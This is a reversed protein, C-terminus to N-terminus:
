YGLPAATLSMSALSSSIVPTILSEVSVSDAVPGVVTIVPGALPQVLTMLSEILDVVDQLDSTLTPLLNEIIGGFQGAADVLAQVVSSLLDVVMQLNAPNALLADFLEPTLLQTLLGPVLVLAGSDALATILAVVQELEGAALLQNVLGPVMNALVGVQGADVLAEFLATLLPANAPDALLALVLEPTVIQTVLGPLEALAGSDALATILTVVQQLQGAALLDNVLGPVLNALVGVQGADVLTEFLSTLLPANAPDALLALVLEPTVIQTLLGPLEALAGSDALATILAVAQQLQGAALLDDVLGPVLGALLDAQGAEVVAQLVATLLATNAPDALLTQLTEPTLLQTVIAAIQETEGAAALADVVAPLLPLLSAVEGEAIVAQVVSVASDTLGADLLQPIIAQAATTDGSDLLTDSVLSLLALSDNEVLYDALATISEIEGATLLAALEREAPTAQDGLAAIQALIANVVSPPVPIPVALEEALPQELTGEGPAPLEQTTSDTSVGGPPEETTTTTTDPTTTNSGDDTTTGEDTTAGTSPDQTTATTGGVTQDTTQAFARPEPALAVVLALLLGVAAVKGIQRIIHKM